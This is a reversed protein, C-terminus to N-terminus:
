FRATPGLLVTVDDNTFNQLNSNTRAYQVTGSVGFSATVPM